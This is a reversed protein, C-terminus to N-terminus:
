KLSKLVGFNESIWHSIRAVTLCSDRNSEPDTM